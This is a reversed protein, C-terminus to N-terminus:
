HKMNKNGSQSKKMPQARAIESFADLQMCFVDLGKCM